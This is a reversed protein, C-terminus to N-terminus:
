DDTLSDLLDRASLPTTRPTTCAVDEQSKLNLGIKEVEVLPVVVSVATCYWGCCGIGMRIM